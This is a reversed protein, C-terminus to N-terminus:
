VKYLQFKEVIKFYAHAPKFNNIVKVAPMQKGQAKNENKHSFCKIAIEFMASERFEM